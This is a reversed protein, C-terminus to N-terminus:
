ITNQLRVSLKSQQKFFYYLKRLPRIFLNHNSFGIKGFTVIEYIIMFLKPNSYHEKRVKKIAIICAISLFGIRTFDQLKFSKEGIM